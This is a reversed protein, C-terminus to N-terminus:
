DLLSRAGPPAAGGDARGSPVARADPSPVPGSPPNMPASGSPGPGGAHPPLARAPVDPSAFPQPARLLEADTLDRERHGGRRLATRLRPMLLARQRNWGFDIPLLGPVVTAVTRLGMREQEPSTQDVVIVDHGATVLEDVVAVVDDRL